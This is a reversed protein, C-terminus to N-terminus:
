QKSPDHALDLRANTCTQMDIDLGGGGDANEKLAGALVRKVRADELTKGLYRFTVRPTLDQARESGALLIKCGAPPCEAVHLINEQNDFDSRANFEIANAPIFAGPPTSYENWDRQVVSRIGSTSGGVQYTIGPDGDGDDDTTGDGLHASTPEIPNDEHPLPVLSQLDVKSSFGAPSPLFLAPDVGRVMYNRDMAFTCGNALATFTGQRPKRPPPVDKDQPNRRLLGRVGALTLEVTASGTVEIGCNIGEEVHFSDGTQVLNFVYWNSSTQVDAFVTDRSFNTERVIWYGTMDCAETKTGAHCSSDCQTRDTSDCEEGTAQIGDGCIATCADETCTWGPVVRCNECGLSTPVDCEEVGTRKGDGCLSAVPLIVDHACGATNALFALSLAALDNKHTRIM